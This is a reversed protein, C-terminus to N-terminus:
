RHPGRAGGNPGAEQGGGSVRDREPAPVRHALLLPVIRRPLKHYFLSCLLTPVHVSFISVLCFSRIGFDLCWVSSEAGLLLQADQLLCLRARLWSGFRDRHTTSSPVDVQADVESKTPTHGLEDACDRLRGLLEETSCRQNSVPQLGVQELAEAWSGFHKRYTTASPLDNRADLEKTTPV